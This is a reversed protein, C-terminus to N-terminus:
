RGKITRVSVFSLSHSWHSSSSRLPPPTVDRTDCCRPCRLNCVPSDAASVAAFANATSPSDHSYKLGIKLVEELTLTNGEDIFAMLDSYAREHRASPSLHLGMIAALAYIESISMLKVTVLQALSENLRFIYTTFTATSDDQISMCQEFCRVILQHTIATGSRQFLTFISEWADTGCTTTADYDTAFVKLLPGFSKTANKLTEL